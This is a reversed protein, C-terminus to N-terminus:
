CLNFQRKFLLCFTLEIVKSRNTKKNRWKGFVTQPINELHASSIYFQIHIVDGPKNVAHHCHKLLLYMHHTNKSFCCTKCVDIGSFKQQMISYSSVFSAENLFNSQNNLCYERGSRIMCGFLLWLDYSWINWSSSMFHLIVCSNNLSFATWLLYCICPSEAAFSFM